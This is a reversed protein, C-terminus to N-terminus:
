EKITIKLKNFANGFSCKNMLLISQLSVHLLIHALVYNLLFDRSTSNTLRVQLNSRWFILMSVLHILISMVENCRCYYYIFNSLKLLLYQVM